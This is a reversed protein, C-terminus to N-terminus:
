VTHGWRALTWGVFPPRYLVETDDGEEKEESRSLEAQGAGLDALRETELVDSEVTGSCSAGAVAERRIVRVDGGGGHLEAESVLLGLMLTVPDHQMGGPVVSDARDLGHFAADAVGKMDMGGLRSSEM